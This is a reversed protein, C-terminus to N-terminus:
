GLRPERPFPEYSNRPTAEQATTKGCAPNVKLPSWALEWLLIEIFFNRLTLASKLATRAVPPKAEIAIACSSHEVATTAVAAAGVANLVAVAVGLAFAIGRSVKQV